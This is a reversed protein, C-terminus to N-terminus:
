ISSQRLLNLQILPSWLPFLKFSVLRFKLAELDFADKKLSLVV